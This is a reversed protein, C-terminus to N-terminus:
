APPSTPDPGLVGVANVTQMPIKWRGVGAEPEADDIRRLSDYGFSNFGLPPNSQEARKM